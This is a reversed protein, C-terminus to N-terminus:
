DMTTTIKLSRAKGLREIKELANSVMVMPFAVRLKVRLKPQRKLGGLFETEVEGSVINGGSNLVMEFFTLLQSEKLKVKIQAYRQLPIITVLPVHKYLDELKNVYGLLMNQDNFKAKLKILTLGGSESEISFNKLTLSYRKMLDLLRLIVGPLNTVLLYLTAEGMEFEERDYGVVVSSGKIIKLADSLFSEKRDGKLGVATYYSGEDEFGMKKYVRELSHHFDKELRPKRSLLDFIGFIEARWRDIVQGFARMGEEKLQDHRRHIDVTRGQKLLETSAIALETHAAEIREKNIPQPENAIKLVIKDGNEIETSYSASITETTGDPRPRYITAGVCCSGADRSLHFAFDLVTAKKEPRTVPGIKHIGSDADFAFVVRQATLQDRNVAYRERADAFAILMVDDFGYKALKYRLHSCYGVEADYDMRESRIQIEVRWKKNPEEYVEHLSRYGGAKPREIYDDFLENIRKFGFQEMARNIKGQAEYCDEKSQVVVRIGLPDNVTRKGYASFIGKRRWSIRHNIPFGSNLDDSVCEALTRLEELLLTKDIEFRDFTQSETSKFEKPNINLFSLDELQQSHHDYGIIKLFPAFVRLALPASPHYKGASRSLDLFLEATKILLVEPNEERLMLMKLFKIGAKGGPEYIFPFNSLDKTRNILDIVPQAIKGELTGSEAPFLIFAAMADPSTDWAVMLEIGDARSTLDIGLEQQLRFANELNQLDMGPYKKRYLTLLDEKVGDALPEPPGGVGSPNSSELLLTYPYLGDPGETPAPRFGLLASPNPFLWMEIKEAKRKAKFLLREARALLSGASRSRTIEM